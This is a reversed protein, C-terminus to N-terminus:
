HKIRPAAPASANPLPSSAAMRRQTENHPQQAESFIAIPEVPPASAVGSAPPRAAPHAQEPVKLPEPVAESSTEKAGTDPAPAPPTIVSPTGSSLKALESTAEALEARDRVIQVNRQIDRLTKEATAARERAADERVTTVQQIDSIIEQMQETRNELAELRHLVDQLVGQL